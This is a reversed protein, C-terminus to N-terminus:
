RLSHLFYGLLEPFSIQFREIVSAVEEESSSVVEEDNPESGESTEEAEGNIIEAQYQGDHIEDIFKELDLSNTRTKDFEVHAIGEEFDVASLTVGDLEAVKDEIYKACGMACVMGEVKMDVSEKNEALVEKNDVEVVELESSANSSCSFLGTLSFVIVLSVLLKKM